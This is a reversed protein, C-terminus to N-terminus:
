VICLFPSPSFGLRFIRFMMVDCELMLQPLLCCFLLFLPAFPFCSFLIIWRMMDVLASEAKEQAERIDAYLVRMGSMAEWKTRGSEAEGGVLSQRSPDSKHHQINNFAHLLLTWHLPFHTYLESQISCMARLALFCCRCWCDKRFYFLNKQKENEGWRVDYGVM